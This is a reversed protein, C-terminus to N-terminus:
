RSYLKSHMKCYQALKDTIVNKIIKNLSNCLSIVQYSQVLWFDRKGLKELSIKQTKKWNKPYYGLRIM